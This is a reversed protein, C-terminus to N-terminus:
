VLADSTPEWLHYLFCISLERVPRSGVRESVTILEPIAQVASKAAVATRQVVVQGDHARGGDLDMSVWDGASLEAVRKRARQVSVGGLVDIFEEMAQAPYKGRNAIWARLKASDAPDGRQASVLGVLCDGWKVQKFLGYMALKDAEGYRTSNEELDQTPRHCSVSM